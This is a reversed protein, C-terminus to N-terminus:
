KKFTKLIKLKIVTMGYVLLVGLCVIPHLFWAVDPIKRYGKVADYTPKVFTLSFFIFKLLDSRDLRSGSDYLHYRRKSKDKFYIQMYRARKRFYKFFNEGSRHIIDTKVIGYLNYGMKILDLNADIHFFNFIDQTVKQIIRRKVLYGNAGLTPVEASNFRVLFFSGMDKAKGMLTWNQEAWSLRDRKNLYYSLPDNAGFLAFYRDLLSLDKQYTYRLPQTAIIDKCKMFPEVMLRLWKNHPLFNDSPVNAILDNKAHNYGIATASEPRGTKEYIIKANFSKAIEVTRDTSGGDVVIIEVKKRPYDQRFISELCQPLVRESNYTPIVISISPLGNLRLLGKTQNIYRM